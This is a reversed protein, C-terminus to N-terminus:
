DLVEFKDAWGPLYVLKQGFLTLKIMRLSDITIYM